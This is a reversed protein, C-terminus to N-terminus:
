LLDARAARYEADTMEMARKQRPPQAPPPTAPSSSSAGGFLWPKDRKLQGLQWELADARARLEALRDDQPSEIETTVIEQEQPRLRHACDRRPHRRHRLYRRHIEGRDRALNPGLGGSHRADPCREAPRRCQASVLAAM